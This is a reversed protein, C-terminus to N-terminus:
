GMLKVRGNDIGCLIEERSFHQVKRGRYRRLRVQRPGSGVVVMTTPEESGVPHIMVKQKLKLM